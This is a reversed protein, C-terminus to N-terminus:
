RNPLPALPAAETPERFADFLSVHEPEAPHDGGSFVELDPKSERLCCEREVLHGAGLTRALIPDPETSGFLGDCPASLDAHSGNFSQGRGSSCAEDLRQCSAAMGRSRGPENGERREVRM